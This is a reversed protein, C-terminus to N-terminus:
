SILVPWALLKLLRDLSRQMKLIEEVVDSFAVNGREIEAGFAESRM